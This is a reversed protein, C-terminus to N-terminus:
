YEYKERKISHCIGYFYKMCDNKNNTRHVAKAMAFCVDDLGLLNIFRKIQPKDKLYYTDYFDFYEQMAIEFQEELHEEVELFYKNYERLQEAREKIMALKFEPTAPLVDLPKDSKGRNCDFCSCLLNDISDKGGKSKPFIHDVELIVSPPKSGCYQCTFMDRKFVEFRLKKSLSM